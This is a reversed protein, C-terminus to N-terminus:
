CRSHGDAVDLRSRREPGRRCHPSDSACGGPTRSVSRPTAACRRRGTAAPRLPRAPLWTAAPWAMTPGRRNGSTAPRAAQKLMRTLKALEAGRGTFHRVPAPLQRPVPRATPEVGLEDVLAKRAHQYAALADSRRGSRYLAIMLQAWFRERLPYDATLQRLDGALEAHRGLHLGAEIRTEEAQLRM